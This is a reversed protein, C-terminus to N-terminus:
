ATAQQAENCMWDCFRRVNDHNTICPSTVLCYTFPAPTAHDFPIILRGSELDAQVLPHLALAIGQGSIAAEIALLSNSFRAGLKAQPSNIGHEAFWARWDMPHEASSTTEDQILPYHLLDGPQKIPSDTRILQPSCVPICNPTFINIAQWGPYHGSGFRISIDLQNGNSPQPAPRTAQDINDPTGAIRLAIEPHQAWFRPLRPILWRAAFSPPASINLTTDTNPQLQALAARFADFGERIKPLLKHGHETLAIARTQRHFLPLTLRDELAKIQQSIAAPTVNLEEAARKFSLHKGAAEFARLAILPPLNDSM